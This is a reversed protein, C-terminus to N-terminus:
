LGLILGGLAFLLHLTAGIMGIELAFDALDFIDMETKAM